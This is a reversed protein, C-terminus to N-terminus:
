RSGGEVRLTAEWLAQAQPTSLRAPDASELTELLQGRHMVLLRDALRPVLRLDHTIFLMGVGAEKTALLEQLIGERVSPDLGTTPEDVVLFTSGRALAMAIGVRQAMGGSLEHPWREATSSVLGVRELWAQPRQESAGSLRLCGQIQRGVRQLPDLSARADQPLWGLVGGRLPAFARQPDPAAYPRHVQGGHTIELECRVVGPQIDQVMGLLAKASLSKGSGSAGVLATVQGPRLELSMGDVLARQGARIELGTLRVRDSM